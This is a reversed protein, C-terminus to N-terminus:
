AAGSAAEFLRRALGAADYRELVRRRGAAGLRARLGADRVLRTLADEWEEPTSVLFGTVGHEVVNRNHGVDSAVVPLGAAMYEKVKFAEKGRDYPTDYLPMIGIDMQTFISFEEERKWLKGEVVPDPRWIRDGVVLYRAGTSRCVRLIPDLVIGAYHEPHTGVFGIVPRDVDRHEKVSYARARVAGELRRTQGGASRAFELIDDNGSLTLDALRIRAAYKWRPVVHYLADDLHYLIRGRRLRMLQHVLWEFLPASKYRWMGRQVLVVDYRAIAPLQAVRVIPVILYWYLGRRALEIARPRHSDYSPLALRSYLWPSTPPFVRGVIPYGGAALDELPRECFIRTAANSTPSLSVM